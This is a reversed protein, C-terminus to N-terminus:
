ELSEAVALMEEGTLRNSRMQFFFGDEEWLLLNVPMLETKGERNSQVGIPAREIWLGKQGRVTVEVPQADGIAFDTTSRDKLRTQDIYLFVDEYVTEGPCHYATWITPADQEGSLNRGNLSFCQPLYGPTVLDFGAQEEAEQESLIAGSQVPQPTATAGGAANFNEQGIWEQPIAAENTFTFLGIQDLVQGALARVPPLIFSLSLILALVAFVAAIQRGSSLEQFWGQLTRAGPHVSESHVTQKGHQTLKQRLSTRVRSLHTVEVNHLTQAIALAERYDRPSSSLHESYAVGGELLTQVDRDFRDAWEAETQEHQM